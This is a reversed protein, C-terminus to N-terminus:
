LTSGPNQIIPEKLLLKNNNKSYCHQSAMGFKRGYWDNVEEAIGIKNWMKTYSLRKPKMKM